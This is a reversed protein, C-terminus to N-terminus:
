ASEEAGVITYKYVYLGNKLKEDYYPNYVHGYIKRLDVDLFDRREVFKPAFFQDINDDNVHLTQIYPINGYVDPIAKNAIPLKTQIMQAEYTDLLVQKASFSIDLEFLAMIVFYVKRDRMLAERLLKYLQENPSEENNDIKMWFQHDAIRRLLSASQGIYIYTDDIAIGYIGCKKDISKAWKYQLLHDYVKESGKPHKYATM